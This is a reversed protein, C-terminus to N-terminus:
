SSRGLVVPIAAGSLPLSQITPFVGPVRSSGSGVATAGTCVVASASGARKVRCGAFMRATRMWSVTRDSRWSTVCGAGPTTGGGRAGGRGGHAPSGRGRRRAAGRYFGGVGGGRAGPGTVAAVEARHRHVNGVEGGLVREDELSSRHGGGVVPMVAAGG